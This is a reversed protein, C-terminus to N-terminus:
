HGYPKDGKRKDRFWMDNRHRKPNRIRINMVSQLGESIFNLSVVVLVIAAGPYIMLGPDSQFYPRGENLMAGWEPAPPQAGLGLYSLSSIVLIVKGLDLAAYVLVPSLVAPFLHRRLIMWNSCGAVKASAIYDKKRESLVIGRVMRAYGIWNILIVAIIMHSMSPGLFGSIAIVLMYDPIVSIGDVVRMLVNDLRGGIFGSILGLPIGIVMVFMIVMCSISLTMKAGAALRSWICRGMHDTGLPYQLSPSQLREGMNVTFPDNSVLLPGAVAFLLLLVLLSFGSIFLPNRFVRM